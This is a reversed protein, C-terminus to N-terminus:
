PNLKRVVGNSADVEIDDGDKIVRTAINSRVICPIKFERAVIATHSLMSGQDAVIALSQKIVGTLETTTDRTVLIQGRKFKGREHAGTVVCAIGRVKGPYATMGKFERINLPVEERELLTNAIQVAEEGFYTSIIGNELLITFHELREQIYSVDVQRRTRLFEHVEQPLLYRMNIWDGLGVRKGIEQYLPRAYYIGEILDAKTFDLVIQCEQMAFVLQEFFVAEPHERFFDEQQAIIGQLRKEPSVQDEWRAGEERLAIVRDWVQTRYEEATKAEGLYEMHFWGYARALDEFKQWTSVEGCFSGYSEATGKPHEREFTDQLEFLLQEEKQVTTLRTPTLLLATYELLKEQTRQEPAIANRLESEFLDHLDSAYIGFLMPHLTTINIQAAVDYYTALEANSIRTVDLKAFSKIDALAAKYTRDLGDFFEQTYKGERLEKEMSDRFRKRDAREYCTRVAKGDSVELNNRITVDTGPMKHRYSECLFYSEHMTRNRVGVTVYPKM